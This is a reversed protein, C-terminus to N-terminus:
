HVLEPECWVPSVNSLIERQRPTVAALTRPKLRYGPWLGADARGFNMIITKRTRTSRNPLGKHILGENFIIIDGATVNDFVYQGPLDVRDKTELPFQARHSGPVVIFEGGGAGVDTMCFFVKVMPCIFREEVVHGTPHPRVGRHWGGGPHGPPTYYLENDIHRYDAGLFEILYPLAAPHDLFHAFRPDADIVRSVPRNIHQAEAEALDAHLQALETKEAESMWVEYLAREDEDMAEKLHLFGQVDFAFRDDDSICM